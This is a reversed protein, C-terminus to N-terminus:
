KADAVVTGGLFASQRERAAVISPDISAEYQEAIWNYDGERLMHSQSNWPDSNENLFGEAPNGARFTEVSGSSDLGGAAGINLLGHNGPGLVAGRGWEVGNVVWDANHQLRTVNAGGYGNVVPVGPSGVAIVEKVNFRGSAAIAEAYMGGQSHGVLMIEADTQDGIHDAILRELNERTRTSMGFSAAVNEEASMLGDSASGTGSIYVIFREVGDPGLVKQIRFADEKDNM